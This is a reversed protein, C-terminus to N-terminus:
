GFIWRLAQRAMDTLKGLTPDSGTRKSIPYVAAGNLQPPNVAPQPPNAAIGQGPNTIPVPPRCETAAPNQACFNEVDKRLNVRLVLNKDKTLRMEALDYSLPVAVSFSVKEQVSPYDHPMGNGTDDYLNVRPDSIPYDLFKRGDRSYAEVRFFEQQMGLDPHSDVLVNGIHTVSKVDMMLNVLIASTNSSPWTNFTLNIRRSDAEHYKSTTNCGFVCATMVEPAVNDNNYRWYNAPPNGNLTWDFNPPTCIRRCNGTTWGNATANQQCMGFSPFINPSPLILNYATKGCYEDQLSFLGHAGEHLNLLPFGVDFKMKHNIGPGFSSCAGNCNGAPCLIAVNDHFAAVTGNGGYGALIAPQEGTCGLSGNGTYNNLKGNLVGTQLYYFNFKNFYDAPITNDSVNWIKAYSNKVLFTADTVFQANSTYTYDPVYIIDIKGTNYPGTLRISVLNSGCWDKRSTCEKEYCTNKCVGGCDVGDEYPGKNVDDCDCADGVRDNDIDSQSPNAYFQCNDLTDPIGDNDDDPDICDPTGDKDNDKEEVCAGDKCGCKCNFTAMDVKGVTKLFPNSVCKATALEEQQATNFAGEQALLSVGVKGLCPNQGTFSCSYDVLTNASSCYDTVDFTYSMAPLLAKYEGNKGPIIVPAKNPGWGEPYSFHGVKGKTYKYTGDTDIQCQPCGGADVTTGKPTGPCLDKDDPVGDMDIDKILGIPKRDAPPIREAPTRDVSLDRYDFKVANDPPITRSSPIREQLCGGARPDCGAPCRQPIYECEGARNMTGDHDWVLGSCRDACRGAAAAGGSLYSLIILCIAMYACTGVARTRLNTDLKM